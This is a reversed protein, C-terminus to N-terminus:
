SRSPPLGAQNNISITEQRIGQGRLEVEQSRRLGRLFVLAAAEAGHRRSQIRRAAKVPDEAGGQSSGERLLEGWEVGARSVNQLVERIGRPM